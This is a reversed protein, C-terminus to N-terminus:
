IPEAFKIAAESLFKFLQGPEDILVDPNEAACAEPQFGWKVGCSKVGANKATQIDVQSDGVMWAQEVPTQTEKLLALLGEPDPKKTVFSDGGYVLPFHQALGLAGLIDRSIKVPKNTLVAMQYRADAFLDLEERIGEYLRTNALAHVRYYKLFFDLARKHLEDSAEPGLSRRVLVSAGNGVYSHIVKEDLPPLDLHALTANVSIALDVASDILTGDLDFVILL